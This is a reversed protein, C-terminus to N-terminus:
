EVPAPARRKVIYEDIDDVREGDVVRDYSRWAMTDNDVFRFVNVASASEGTATGGRAKVVWTNGDRLWFGESYGGHSDFVWSRIQRAVADWGIRMTGSMAKRGEIQVSFDQLLFNGSDDWRCSTAVTADPSEDIWDGVMWALDELREHPTLDGPPAEFDRVSAVVWKGDVKVHVAVYSSVSDAEGSAPASRVLGEEVAINTTLVRISDVDIQMTAKPHKEFLAAFEKEIAERGRTLGGDEDIIEAKLAFLAALGKADHANYAKAFAEAGARIAREDADDAAATADAGKPAATAAAKPAVAKAPEPAKKAAEPAKKAAETAKKAAQGAQKAAEAAKERVQAQAIYGCCLAAVVATSVVVSRNRM